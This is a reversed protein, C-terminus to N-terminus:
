YSYCSSFNQARAAQLCGFVAKQRTTMNFKVEMDQIIKGFLVRTLVYQAKLPVIDKRIFNSLDFNPITEHLDNL